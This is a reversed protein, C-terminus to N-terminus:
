PTSDPREVVRNVPLPHATPSISVGAAPKRRARDLTAAYVSLNTSRVSTRPLSPTCRTSRTRAAIVGSGCEAPSCWAAGRGVGLRQSREEGDAPLALEDVPQHGADLLVAVDETDSLQALSEVQAFPRQLPEHVAPESQRRLPQDLPAPQLFGGFAEPM